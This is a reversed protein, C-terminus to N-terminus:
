GQDMADFAWGIGILLLIKWLMRTNPLRDIRSAINLM